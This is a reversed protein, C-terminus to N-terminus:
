IGSLEIQDELVELGPENVPSQAIQIHDGEHRSALKVPLLEIVNHEITRAAKKDLGREVVQIRMRGAYKYPTVIVPEVQSGGAEKLNAGSKVSVYQCIGPWERM